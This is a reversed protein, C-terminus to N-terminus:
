RFLRGVPRRSKEFIGRYASPTLGNMGTARLAAGDLATGAYVPIDVSAAKGPALQLRQGGQSVWFEATGYSVIPSATGSPTLGEFRGPFAAAGAAGTVDLPTLSVDVAGSIPEGATNVLAGPPLTVQVGDRGSVSGGTGAGISQAAARPSLTAAFTMGPQDTLTVVQYNEAYGAKSLHLTQTKAGPLSLSVAGAADTTASVAGGVQEASVGALAAGDPGRVTGLVKVAPGAAPAASVTVVRSAKAESGAPDRVTLTVTHEGTAAYVHALRAAGSRGGDGFDWSYSLAGGKPDNSARADFPLAAGAQVTAAATFAAVPPQNTALPGGGGSTDCAVILAALVALAAFQILRHM